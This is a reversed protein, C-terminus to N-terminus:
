IRFVIWESISHRIIRHAKYDSFYPLEYLKLSAAVLISSPTISTASICGLKLDEVKCFLIAEQRVRLERRLIGLFNTFKTSNKICYM